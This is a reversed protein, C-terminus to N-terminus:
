SRHAASLCMRRWTTSQVMERANVQPRENYSAIALRVDPCERKVKRAASLLDPLNYKVEQNRMPLIAVLRSKESPM